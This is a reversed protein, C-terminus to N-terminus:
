ARSTEALWDSAPSVPSSPHRHPPGTRECVRRRRSTEQQLQRCHGGTCSQHESAPGPGAHAGMHTTGPSCLLAPLSYAPAGGCGTGSAGEGLHELRSEAGFILRNSSPSNGSMRSNFSRRWRQMQTTLGACARPRIISRYCNRSARTLQWWHKHLKIAELNFM